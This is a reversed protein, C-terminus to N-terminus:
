EHFVLVPFSPAATLDSLIPKQEFLAAFINRHHAATVLLGTNHDRVYKEIADAVDDSWIREFNLGPKDKFFDSIEENEAKFVDKSLDTDHKSIHLFTISANFPKIFESFPKLALRGKEEYAMAYAINKYTGYSCGAPVFLVPCQAKKIVNYTNTGFFFETITRAGGTGMVIITNADGTSGLKASLSQITIDVEYDVSIKFMRNIEQCINKLRDAAIMSDEKSSSSIGESLTVSSALPIQHVNVLLLKTNFVQALKAAYEVANNAEDSFDTPCIIKNLM